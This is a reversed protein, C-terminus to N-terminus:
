SSQTTTIQVQHETIKSNIWQKKLRMMHHHNKEDGNENSDLGHDYIVEREENIQESKGELQEMFHQKWRELIPIKDNILEGNLGHCAYRTQKFDKRTGNILKYLKRSENKSNHEQIERM